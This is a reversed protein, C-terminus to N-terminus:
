RREAWAQNAFKEKRLLDARELEKDTMRSAQIDINLRSTLKQLWSNTFARVAESFEALELLGPLEPAHSSQVLLVSGHQMVANKWRRQASGAVKYGRCIVDGVARRQFCLFPEDTLGDSERHLHCDVAQDALTEVLTEHFALYLEQETGFRSQNPKTFCYTLESDHVIAGGGSARRVLDCSLSAAHSERASLNQFYGLSVTPRKWGYFRLSTLDQEAASRLLAEDIAMNEDGVHRSCESSNDNVILRCFQM